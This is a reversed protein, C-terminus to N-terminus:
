LRTVWAAHSNSREHKLEDEGMDSVNDGLKRWGQEGNIVVALQFMQGNAEVEIASKMKNMGAMAWDGTFSIEMGGFHVKGKAKWTRAPFKALNAEGGHAAIAKELLQQPNDDARAVGTGLLLALALMWSASRM